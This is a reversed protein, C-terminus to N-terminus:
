PKYRLMTRPFPIADKINDLKCIWSILREVGLGFGAHPVSGYKRTDFYFEYDKLKEGAKLLSKKLEKINIDRQSGGILEGYGEPAILDFCLATKPNKPDRPKYFAMAEKPYNTVFIPVDFNETLRDEEITRLDKGWPVNMKYKEKLLKLVKDYTIVKFDKKAVAELKKLDRKLIELEKKNEKLVKKVVHKILGEGLKILGELDLWAAEVEAHWYETLHRTTKSKEARFSPAICYIKELAFIGAEAYFQWTQTLHLKKGFYNVDFLTPGEEAGGPIIIPSHFEYYNNKRFYEHIAGFVTSRIKLISTMKRSRLWLHRKDLLFETSQDKTIPYKEAFDIVNLNKVEIEYGTPARKDKYVNGQIEISSEILLKNAEKWTKKSIKNKDIIGQIINTSDRVVLFVKDKLKRERYVWGHINVSGKKKDLAQQVSLFRM